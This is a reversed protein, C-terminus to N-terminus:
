SDFHATLNKELFNVLSTGCSVIILKDNQHTCNRLVSNNKREFALPLCYQFYFPHMFMTHVYVCVCIYICVCMSM